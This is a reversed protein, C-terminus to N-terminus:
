KRQENVILQLKDASLLGIFRNIERDGSMLLTTPISHISWRDALDPLRDLDIKSVEIDNSDRNCTKDIIEWQQKCPASWSTCFLILRIRRNDTQPFPQPQSSQM